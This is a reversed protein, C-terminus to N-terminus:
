TTPHPRAQPAPRRRATAGARRRAGLRANLNALAQELGVVEPDLERMAVALRYEAFHTPAVGCARAVLEMARLSPKDRGHVLMNIHAHTLGRGDLERTAQALARYTLGRAQMLPRLAEGFPKSSPSDM